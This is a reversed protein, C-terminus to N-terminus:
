LRPGSMSAPLCAKDGGQDAASGREYKGPGPAEGKHCEEMHGPISLHPCRTLSPTDEWLQFIRCALGVRRCIEM